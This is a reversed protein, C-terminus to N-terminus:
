IEKRKNKKYIEIYAEPSLKKLIDVNKQIKEIEINSKNYFFNKYKDLVIELVKLFLEYNDGPILYSSPEDRMDEIDEESKIINLNKQLIVIDVVRRNEDPYFNYYGHESFNACYVKSIKPWDNIKNYIYYYSKGIIDEEDAWIEEGYPDIDLNKIENIYKYYNKLM